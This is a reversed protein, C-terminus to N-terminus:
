IKKVFSKGQFNQLNLQSYLNEYFDYFLECTDDYYELIYSLFSKLRKNHEYYKELTEEVNIKRESDVRKRNERQIENELERIKQINRNKQKLAKALNM